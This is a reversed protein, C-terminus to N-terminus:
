ASVEQFGADSYAEDLAARWDEIGINYCINRFVTSVNVMLMAEVDLSGNPGAVEQLASIVINQSRSPASTDLETLFQRKRSLMLLTDGHEYHFPLGLKRKPKGNPSADTHTYIKVLRFADPESMGIDDKLARALAFETLNSFSLRRPVGRGGSAEFGAVFGRNLYHQVKHKSLGSAKEADSVSYEKELINM